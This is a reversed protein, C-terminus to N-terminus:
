KDGEKRAVEVAVDNLRTYIDDLKKDLREADKERVLLTFGVATTFESSVLQVPMTKLAHTVRDWLPYAVECLYRQSPEMIVVQAAKLAIVAGQTYARVLGGAGLLVGGIYFVYITEAFAYILMSGILALFGFSIMKRVGFKAVLSGFFLNIVAQSIFRCSDNISFLSRPINLHKTIKGLYLSKTSSCFGLCLFVMFFCVALIVWKYKFQRSQSSATDKTSINVTDKNAM